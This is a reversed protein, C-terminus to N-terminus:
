LFYCWFGGGIFLVFMNCSTVDFGVVLSCRLRGVILFVVILLMFLRCYITIVIWLLCCLLCYIAYVDYFLCCKCTAIFLMFFDVICLYVIQLICYAIYLMFLLRFVRWLGNACIQRSHFSYNEFHLPAFPNYHLRINKLTWLYRCFHWVIFLSSILCSIMVLLFVECCVFDVILLIFM